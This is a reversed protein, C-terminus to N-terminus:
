RGGYGEIGHDRDDRYSQRKQIRADLILNREGM